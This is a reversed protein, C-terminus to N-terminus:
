PTEPLTGRARREARALAAAPLLTLAALGVAWWMTTRYAAAAADPAAPSAPLAAALAVALLATGLSAGLRQLVNLQPVADGVQEKPLVKLASAVLPVMILGIGVGRVLLVVVFEWAPTTPTVFALPITAVTMIPIGVLALLGGGYRDTQRAFLVISFAAGVGQPAFLLGARFSDAGQVQEYFLPLLLYPGFVAAGIVLNGVAAATFARNRYLRLELLPTQARLAHVVFAILVATGLTLALVTGPADANGQGVAALGYTIAPVSTALAAFGVWDLRGADQRQERHLRRLALLAAVVGVPLNVFFIWRWSLRDVIFGGVTPGLIPSLVAVSTVAALARGMRRPGAARAVITQAVPMMLGGAAGQVTRFAVLSGLSWAAGCLGSTVTFGVLSAVYTQKPGFRRAVWGSVPVAAAVALTYATVVWQVDGVTAGFQTSLSPLAINVVTLDLSVLLTGAIVPALLRRLPRDLGRELGAEGAAAAPEPPAAPPALTRTPGSGTDPV